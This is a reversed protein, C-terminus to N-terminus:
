ISTTKIWRRCFLGFYGMEPTRVTATVSLTVDTVPKTLYWPVQVSLYKDPKTVTLNLEGNEVVATGNGADSVIKWTNITSSFDDNFGSLDRAGGQGTTTEPIAGTTSGDSKSKRFASNALDVYGKAKVLHETFTSLASVDMDDIGTHLDPRGAEYEAHAKEMNTKFVQYETPCPEIALDNSKKIIRDLSDFVDKKWAEDTFSTETVSGMSSSFIKLEANFEELLTVVKTLYQSKNVSLVKTPVIGSQPMSAKAKDIYENAKKLHDTFSNLSDVDINDIGNHLYPKAAKFEEYAKTFNSKFTEYEVPASENAVNGAAEIVRDFASYIDNRWTLDKFIQVDAKDFLTGFKEFETVYTGLFTGIRSLYKSVGPKPIETPIATSTPAATPNEKTQTAEPIPTNSFGINVTGTKATFWGLGLAIVLLVCLGVLCVIIILIFKSGTKKAPLQPSPPLSSAVQTSTAQPVPIPQPM